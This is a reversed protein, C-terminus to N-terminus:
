KKRRGQKKRRETEGEVQEEKAEVRVQERRRIDTAPSCCTDLLQPFSWVLVFITLWEQDVSHSYCHRWCYLLYHNCRIHFLQRNRSGSRHAYVFTSLSSPSSSCVALWPHRCHCCCWSNGLFVRLFNQRHHCSYKKPSRPVAHSSCASQRDYLSESCKCRHYRRHGQMWRIVFIMYSVLLGISILHDRMDTKQHAQSCQLLLVLQWLTGVVICVVLKDTPYVTCSIASKSRQTNIVSCTCAPSSYTPNRHHQLHTFTVTILVLM